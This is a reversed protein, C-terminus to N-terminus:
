MNFYIKLNKDQDEIFQEMQEETETYLFDPQIHGHVPSYVVGIELGTVSLGLHPFYRKMGQEWKKEGFNDKLYKKMEEKIADKNM